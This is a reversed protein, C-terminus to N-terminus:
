ARKGGGKLALLFAALNEDPATQGMGLQGPPMGVQAGGMPPAQPQLTPTGERAQMVGADPTNPTRPPVRGDGGGEGGFDFDRAGGGEGGDGEDEGGGGGGGGLLEMIASLDMGAGPSQPLQQAGAYPNFTPRNMLNQILSTGGAGPSLMAQQLAQKQQQTQAAHQQQQSVSGALSFRILGEPSGNAMIYKFWDEPSLPMGSAAKAEIQRTVHLDAM